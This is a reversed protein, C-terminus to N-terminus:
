RTGLSVPAVVLCDSLTTRPAGGPALTPLAGTPAGTERKTSQGSESRGMGLAQAPDAASSVQQLM